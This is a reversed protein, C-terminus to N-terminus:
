LVFLPYQQDIGVYEAYRALNPPQFILLLYISRKVFDERAM